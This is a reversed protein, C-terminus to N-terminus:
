APWLILNWEHQDGNAVRCVICHNGIDASFRKVLDHLNDLLKHVFRDLVLSRHGGRQLPPEAERGFEFLTKVLNVAFHNHFLLLGTAASLLSGITHKGSAAPGHIFVVRMSSPSFRRWEANARRLRVVSLMM